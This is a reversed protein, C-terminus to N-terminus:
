MLDMDSDSNSSDGSDGDSNNLDDSQDQSNDFEEDQINDNRSYEKAGIYDGPHIEQKADLVIATAREPTTKIVKIQAIKEKLDQVYTSSKRAEMNKFVTFTQGDRVGDHSGKNLFITDQTGAINQSDGKNGGIVEAKIQGSENTSSIDGKILNGRMVYSNLQVFNINRLVKARYVNKDANVLDLVQIEGELVVPKGMNQGNMGQVTEGLHYAVFRDNINVPNNFRIFIDDYLSARENDEDMEVIKGLSEPPTESLYSTLYVSAAGRNKAVEDSAFGVADYGSIDAGRIYPLSPPLESLVASSKKEPPPIAPPEPAALVEQEVKEHGAQVVTKAGEEESKTINISPAKDLNGPSFKLVYGPSILHPNTIDDNMQWVKPWYYGNGFFTTSIDWLTDGPQVTYTENIKEGAIQSWASDSTAESYFENYIRNLRQEFDDPVSQQEQHDVVPSVTSKEDPAETINEEVPNFDKEPEVEQTPEPVSKFDGAKKETPEELPTIPEESPTETVDQESPEILTEEPKIKDAAQNKSNEQNLDNELQEASEGSSQTAHDEINGTELKDIENSIEDQAKLSYASSLVLALVILVKVKKV